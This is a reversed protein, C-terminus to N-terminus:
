ATKILSVFDQWRQPLVEGVESLRERAEAYLRNLSKHNDSVRLAALTLRLFELNYPEFDLLLRGVRAAEKADTELLREAQTALALHLSDRVQEDSNPLGNLYAGRWLATNGTALFEEADSSVAGLAYGGVTTQIVASGLSARTSRVLEKLSSGARDEDEDTYLADLLELRTVEASGAIRAELLAALLEQRKRGRVAIGDGMRMAGLVELRSNNLTTPVQVRGALEPFRELAFQCAGDLGRDRFWELRTQASPVDNSLRDLELGIRHGELVLGTQTCLQAAVLFADRAEDRRESALLAQGRATHAGIISETFGIQQALGFAEDALELGRVPRGAETEVSAAEILANTLLVPSDLQRAVELAERIYKQALIAGHLPKWRLYLTVLTVLGYVLFPQAPIRRLVELAQQLLSESREFDGLEQYVPSVMIQTQAVTVSAGWSTYISLSEEFDPLSERYLGLQLRNVSRNRLTNALSPQDRAARYANSLAAFHGEAEVYRGAYFAVNALIDFQSARESETLNPRELTLEALRTATELDGSEIQAHAVYHVTDASCHAQRASNSHWTRLVAEYDGGSDYAHILRGLWAPGDRVHAPLRELTAQMEARQGDLAYRQALILLAENQEDTDPLTAVALEVMQALRGADADFKLGRLARLAIRGRAEADASRFLM